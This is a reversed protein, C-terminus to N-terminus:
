DMCFTCAGSLLQYLNQFEQETETIQEFIAGTQLSERFDYQTNVRASDYHTITNNADISGPKM